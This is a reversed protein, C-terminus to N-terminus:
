RRAQRPLRPGGRRGRRLGRGGHRGAGPAAARGARTRAHQGARPRDGARRAGRRPRPLVRGDRPDDDGDPRVRVRGDHESLAAARPARGRRAARRQRDVGRPGRRPVRPRAHRRPRVPRRHAVARHDARRDRDRGPDDVDLEGAPAVVVRGGSLLPVWLEYTSADFAAPSHLLVRESEAGLRSDLARAVVDRHRVAVGKPVGTSGSTYMVYALNDPHSEPLVVDAVPADDRVALVVPMDLSGADAVGDVVLTTCGAEALVRRMRERPARVDMPLYAAGALVTAVEAVVFDVSRDLLLGVPEEPRVGHAVLRRALAEARAALEAYTLFETGQSVAIADPTRRVQAAFLEPLAGAPTATGTDNWEAPVARGVPALPTDPDAAVRALLTAFGDRLATITAADFLGTRYEWLCGTGDPGTGLVVALDLGAWGPSRDEETVTLGALEIGGGPTDHAGFTVQVLPERGPEREPAVEAVIRELSEGRHDLDDLVHDRVRRVLERFTPTGSADVRCPVTDVLSGVTAELDPDDRGATPVGVVLDHQEGLTALHWTFAALLVVFLSAHEARALSTAAEVVPAPLPGRVRAGENGTDPGAPRDFPLRTPGPLGALRERWYGLDTAALRARQDVAHDAYSRAPPPLEAGRYLEGLERNLVGKSWGDVVIHHAVLTLAHRDTGLTACTWRVPAAATLDFRQAAAADVRRRLEAAPDAAGTLDVFSLPARCPPHVRQTGVDPYSTRLMEHRRHLEGLAAALATTDLPGDIWHIWALNSIPAAGLQEALYLREQELSQPVTRM